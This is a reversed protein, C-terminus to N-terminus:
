GAQPLVKVRPLSPAFSLPWSLSEELGAARDVCYGGLFSSLTRGFCRHSPRSLVTLGQGSFPTLVAVFSDRKSTLVSRMRQRRQPSSKSPAGGPTSVHSFHHAQSAPCHASRKRGGSGLSSTSSSTNRSSLTAHRIRCFPATDGRLSISQPPTYLSFHIALWGSAPPLTLAPNVRLHPSSWDCRSGARRPAVVVGAAPWDGRILRGGRFVFSAPTASGWWSRLTQRVSAVVAAVRLSPFDKGKAV